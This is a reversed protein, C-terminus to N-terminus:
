NVGGSPQEGKGRISHLHRREELYTVWSVIQNTVSNHTEEKVRKNLRLLFHSM